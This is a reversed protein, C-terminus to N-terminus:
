VAVGGGHVARVHAVVASAPGHGNVVEFLQELHHDKMTYDKPMTVYIPGNPRAEPGAVLFASQVDGITM